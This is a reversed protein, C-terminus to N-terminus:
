EDADRPPTFVVGALPRQAQKLSGVNMVLSMGGEDYFVTGTAGGDFSPGGRGFPRCGNMSWRMEFARSPAEAGVRLPRGDVRVDVPGSCNWVAAPSRWRPVTSDDLLSTVFAQLGFREVLTTDPQAAPAAQAAASLFVCALTTRLTQM